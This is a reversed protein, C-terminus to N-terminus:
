QLNEALWTVVEDPADTLDIKEPEVKPLGVAEFYVKAAAPATKGGSMADERMAAVVACVLEPTEQAQIAKRLQQAYRSIGAPNGSQGPKWRKEGWNEPLQQGVGGTPEIGTASM